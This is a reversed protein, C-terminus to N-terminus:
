TRLFSMSLDISLCPVLNTCFIKIKSFLCKLKTSYFSFVLIFLQTSYKISTSISLSCSTAISSLSLFCSVISFGVNLSIFYVVFPFISSDWFSSIFM